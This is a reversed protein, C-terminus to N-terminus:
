STNPMPRMTRFKLMYFIQGDLGQRRQRFIVPGPSDLKILLAFLALLPSLVPPGPAGVFDMARKANSRLAAPGRSGRLTPWSDRFGVVGASGPLSLSPNEIPTPSTLTSM